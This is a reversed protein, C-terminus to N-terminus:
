AARQRADRVRVARRPCRDVAARADAPAAGAVDGAVVGPALRREPGHPSPARGLAPLSWRARRAVPRASRRGAPASGPAGGAHAESTTAAAQADGVLERLILLM